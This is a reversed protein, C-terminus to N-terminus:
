KPKPLFVSEEEQLNIVTSQLYKGVNFNITLDIGSKNNNVLIVTQIKVTTCITSARASQSDALKCQSTVYRPKGLGLVTILSEFILLLARLFCRGSKHLFLQPTPPPRLVVKYFSGANNFQLPNKVLRRYLKRYKIESICSLLNRINEQNQM